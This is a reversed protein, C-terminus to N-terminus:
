CYELLVNEYRTCINRQQLKLNSRVKVKDGVKYKM